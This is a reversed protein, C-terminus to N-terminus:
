ETHFAGTSSAPIPGERSTKLCDNNNLPKYLPSLISGELICSRNNARALTLPLTILAPFNTVCV